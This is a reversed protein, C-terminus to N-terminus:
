EGVKKGPEFRLIQGTKSVLIYTGPSSEGAVILDRTTYHGFIRGADGYVMWQNFLNSSDYKKQGLDTFDAEMQKLEGLSHKKDMEWRFEGEPNVQGYYEGQKTFALVRKGDESSYAARVLSPDIEWMDESQMLEDDTIKFMVLRNGSPKTVPAKHFVLVREGGPIIFLDPVGTNFAMLIRLKDGPPKEPDYLWLDNLRDHIFLKGGHEGVINFKGLQSDFSHELEGTETNYILLLGEQGIMALRKGSDIVQATEVFQKLDTLQAVRPDKILPKPDKIYGVDLGALVFADRHSGSYSRSDRKLVIRFRKANEYYNSDAEMYIDVSSWVRIPLAGINSVSAPNASYTRLVDGKADLLETDIQVPVSNLLREIWVRAKLGATFDFDGELLVERIDTNAPFRWGRMGGAPGTNEVTEMSSLGKNWVLGSVKLSSPFIRGNYVGFFEIADGSEILIQPERMTPVNGVVTYGPVKDGEVRKIIKSKTSSERDIIRIAMKEPKGATKSEAFYVNELPYMSGDDKIAGPVKSSWGMMLGKSGNWMLIGLADGSKGEILYEVLKFNKAIGQKTREDIGEMQVLKDRWQEALGLRTILYIDQLGTFSRKYYGASQYDRVSDLDSKKEPLPKAVEVLCREMWPKSRLYMHDKDVKVVSSLISHMPDLLRTTIGEEIFKSLWTDVKEWQEDSAYDMLLPLVGSLGQFVMFARTERDLGERNDASFVVEMHKDLYDQFGQRDGQKHLEALQSSVGRFDIVGEEGKPKVVNAAMKKEGSRVRITDVTRAVQQMKYEAKKEGFRDVLHAQYKENEAADGKLGLVVGVYSLEQEGCEDMAPLYPRLKRLLGLPYYELSVNHSSYIGGIWFADADQKASSKVVMAAIIKLATEEGQLQAIQSLWNRNRSSAFSYSSASDFRKSSAILATYFRKGLEPDIDDKRDLVSEILKFNVAVNEAMGDELAEVLYVFNRGYFARLVREDSLWRQVERPNGESMKRFVAALRKSNHYCYFVRILDESIKKNYPEQLFLPGALNEEPDAGWDGPLEKKLWKYGLQAHESPSKAFFEKDLEERFAKEMKLEVLYEAAKKSQIGLQNFGYIYYDAAILDTCRRIQKKSWAAKSEKNELDLEGGNLNYYGFRQEFRVSQGADTKRLELYHQYIRAWDNGEESTSEGREYSTKEFVGANRAINGVWAPMREVFANDDEPVPVKCGTKLSLFGEALIAQDIMRPSKFNKLKEGKSVYNAGLKSAEESMEVYTRNPHDVPLRTYWTELSYEKRNARFQESVAFDYSIYAPMMLAIRRARKMQLSKSALAHGYDPRALDPHVFRSLQEFTFGAMFVRKGWPTEKKGEPLPTSEALQGLQGENEAGSQESKEVKIKSGVQKEFSGLEEETAGLTSLINKAIDYQSKRQEDKKEGSGMVIKPLIELADDVVSRNVLMDHLSNIRTTLLYLYEQALIDNEAKSWDTETVIEKGLEPCRAIRAAEMRRNFGAKAYFPLAKLKEPTVMTQNAWNSLVTRYAGWNREDELWESSVSQALEVESMGMVNGNMYWCSRLWEDKPMEVVLLELLPSTVSSNMPLGAQKLAAAVIVPKEAAWGVTLYSYEKHQMVLCAVEKRGEDSSNDWLRCLAKAMGEDYTCLKFSEHRIFELTEDDKLELALKLGEGLGKLRMTIFIRDLARGQREALLQGEEGLHYALDTRSGLTFSEDGFVQDLFTYFHKLGEWDERVVYPRDLSYYKLGKDVAEKGSEKLIAGAKEKEGARYAMRAISLWNEPKQPKLERVLEWAKADQGKAEYYLAKALQIGCREGIKIDAADLEFGAWNKEFQGLLYEEENEDLPMMAVGHMTNEHVYARGSDWLCSDRCSVVMAVSLNDLQTREEDTMASLSIPSIGCALGLLCVSVYRFLMLREILSISRGGAM